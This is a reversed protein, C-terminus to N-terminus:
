GKWIELTRFGSLGECRLSNIFDKMVWDPHESLNLDELALNQTAWRKASSKDEFLLDEQGIDWERWVQIM